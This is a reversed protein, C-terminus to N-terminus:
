QEVTPTVTESPTPTITETRTLTPTRTVTITRTLTITRTRTITRTFTATRTPTNTPTPTDTPTPSTTMEYVLTTEVISPAEPLLVFDVAQQMLAQIAESHPLFVETVPQDSIQFTEMEAEGLTFAGIRHPGGLKLAFPILATLDELFLDSEVMGRFEPVWEPLNVLNGGSILRMIINTMVQLQRENRSTEDMGQRYRIYCLVQSASLHQVGINLKPCAGKMYAPVELTLGNLREVLKTFDDTHVLVYHEPRIGFTYEISQVLLDFEGLSYAINLRQITFGPLYVFLDPPITILSVKATDTSYIVLVIADTRGPYPAERDAGLLVLTHVGEPLSIPKAPPILLTIPTEAPPPFKGWIESTATATDAKPSSTASPTALLPSPSATIEETSSPSCGAILFTFFGCIMAISFLITTQKKSTRVM